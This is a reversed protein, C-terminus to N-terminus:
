SSSRAPHDFQGDASDKHGTGLQLIFNGTTTFKQVRNGFDDAVYVTDHNKSDIDVTAPLDFNGSGTGLYGM